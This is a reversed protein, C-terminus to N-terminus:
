TIVPDPYLNNRFGNSHLHAKHVSFMKYLVATHEEDEPLLLRLAEPHFVSEYWEVNDEDRSVKNDHVDGGHLGACNIRTMVVGGLLWRLITQLDVGAITSAM